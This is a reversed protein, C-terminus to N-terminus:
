RSYKIFPTLRGVRDYLRRAAANDDETLWYVQDAGAADAARYVAEILARGAGAGRAEPAVFLDELYCRDTISWTVPHFLYHVLGILRGAADFAGLGHIRGEPDLLRRWTEETTAAPVETRYFALYGNWLPKWADHDNAQFPRVEVPMM